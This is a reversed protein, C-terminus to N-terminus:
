SISLDEEHLTRLVLMRSIGAIRSATRRTSLRPPSREIIALIGERTNITGVVQKESSVSVSPFCGNDRLIQHIRTFVSRSPIRRDLFHRRNEEVAGRSNDSCFGYVFHM